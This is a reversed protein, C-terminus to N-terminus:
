FRSISYQKLDIHPEGESLVEDVLKGTAAGMSIGLMNHGAAVTVNRMAPSKDIVPKGDYTMPRWGFWEEEHPDCYPEKLYLSAGRKLADLRDRNITTDYGAFEMTSGLRYGSAFPTVIVRQEMFALPTTPCTEPRPYTISYGKGPQIPVKAGIWDNLKPTWSGTALVYEDASMEGASTRLSAAQGAEKAFGTISTGELITVGMRELASKLGGLLKDPRIHADMDYFWAGATSGPKLSPERSELEEGSVREAGLGFQQLWQDSQVYGDMGGPTQYVFYAGREQWECDIGDDELMQKYLGVSSQLLAHRGAAAELM